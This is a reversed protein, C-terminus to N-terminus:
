TASPVLCPPPGSYLSIGSWSRPSPCTRNRKQVAGYRWPSGLYERDEGRARSVLVSPCRLQVSAVTASQMWVFEGPVFDVLRAGGIEQDTFTFLVM